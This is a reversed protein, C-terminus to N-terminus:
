SEETENGETSVHMSGNGRRACDSSFFYRFNSFCPHKSFATRYEIRGHVFIIARDSVIGDHQVTTLPSNPFEAVAQVEHGPGLTAKSFTDPKEIVLSNTLPLMRYEIASFIVTDYAPTQGTNKIKIKCAVSKGVEFTEMKCSTVFVYARLQREATKDAGSVLKNTARALIITAGGLITTFAALVLTGFSVWFKEHEAFFCYFGAFWNPGDYRCYNEKHEVRNTTDNATPVPAIEPKISQAQQQKPNNADAYARPAGLSFNAAALAVIIIIKLM